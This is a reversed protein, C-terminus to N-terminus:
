GEMRLIDSVQAKLFRYRTCLVSLLTVFLVTVLAFLAWHSVSLYSLAKGALHTAFVANFVASGGVCLLTALTLGTLALLLNECLVLAHLKLGTVGMLRLLAFSKVKRMLSSLMLGMLTLLGGTVTVAAVVEFILNLVYTVAKVDEIESLSSIIRYDKQLRTVLPEVSYIDKAYLRVKAFTTRASNLYSGDSFPLPEYGDRFDEMAVVSEFPILFRDQAVVSEFPILFRDQALLATPLVGKVTFYARGNEIQGGRTRSVYLTLSEGASVKLKEALAASVYLAQEKGLDEFGAAKLLPDGEATPVAMASRVVAKSSRLDCTVNLSRTLPVVFGTAPDRKLDEIFASDLRYNAGMIIELHAPNETLQRELESLVGTRLSFLLLLPALVAAVAAVTCLSLLKEFWLDRLALSLIRM